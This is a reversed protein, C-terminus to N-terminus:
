RSPEARRLFKPRRALFVVSLLVLFAAPSTAQRMEGHTLHTALAGTMIVMLSGAGYGSLMPVVPAAASAAEAAGVALHFNDPYGWAHFRKPWNPGRFKDTGILLFLFCLLIQLIWLGVIGAKKMVNEELPCPM